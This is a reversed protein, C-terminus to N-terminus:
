EDMMVSSDRRSCWCGRGRDVGLGCGVGWVWCGVFVLVCVGMARNEELDRTRRRM